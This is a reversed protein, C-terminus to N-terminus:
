AVIEKMGQFIEKVLTQIRRKRDDDVKYHYNASRWEAMPPLSGSSIFWKDCESSLADTYPKYRKDGKEEVRIKTLKGPLLSEVDTFFNVYGKMLCLQNVYYHYAIYLAVWDRGNDANMQPLIGQLLNRFRQQQGTTAFKRTDFFKFNVYEFDGEEESKKGAPKDGFHIHQHEIKSQYNLIWAIQNIVNKKEDEENM